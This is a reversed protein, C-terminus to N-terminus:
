ILIDYYVQLCNVKIQVCFGFCQEFGVGEENEEDDDYCVALSDCINVFLNKSFSFKRFTCDGFIQM